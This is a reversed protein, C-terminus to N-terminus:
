NSARPAGAGQGNESPGNGATGQGSAMVEMVAAKEQEQKFAALEAAYEEPSKVIDDSEGLIEKMLKAWLKDDRVPSPVGQAMRQEALQTAMMLNQIRQEREALYRSGAARVLGGRRIYHPPITVNKIRGDQTIQVIQETDLYQANMEMFMNLAETILEDEFAEVHAGMKTAIINTNRATRTATEDGGGSTNIAGTTREHRAISENLAAFGMPIGQFNKQIPIISGLENVMHRVGPGSPKMVGDILNDEMVEFEPQIVVNVADIGQNHIANASDQEDLAKEVYGIGYVAGEMVTLRANQIMPRGSFMPSPECRILQDNAVTVIYNEYIGNEGGKSIEFTGHMEKVEVKNKGFPMQMGMAMKMLTEAENDPARDESTLESVKDIHSYLRYGDEKPEAMKKLYAKTRFSRMIRLSGFADNPHQEQVYNFISGIQLIPGRYIIDMDKPPRPPEILQPTQPPEQGMAQAQLSMVRHQAKLQTAERTYAGMKEVWEAMADNFQDYKVAKREVWGGSWPCNGLLGMSRAAIRATKQFKGQIMQYQLLYKMAEAWQDDDENFGPRLPLIKLWDEVGMSADVIQPTITEVADFTLAVYRRSRNAQKAYEAWKKDFKCLFAMLCRKWTDELESREERMEKWNSLVLDRVENQASLSKLEIAM